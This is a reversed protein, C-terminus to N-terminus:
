ERCLRRAIDYGTRRLVSMDCLVVDAGHSELVHMAELGNTATLVDYGARTLMVTAVRLVNPDDDAVLVTRAHGCVCGLQEPNM